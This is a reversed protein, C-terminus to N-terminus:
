LKVTIYKVGDHWQKVKQGVLLDHIQKITRFKPEQGKFCFVVYFHCDHALSREFSSYEALDNLKLNATGKVHCWILNNDKEVLYDPLSRLTPHVKWFNNVPNLKSDFGTHHYKLGLGECYQEFLTEGMDTQKITQREEFTGQGSYKNM